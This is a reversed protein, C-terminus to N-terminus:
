MENFGDPTGAMDAGPPSEAGTCCSMHGGMETVSLSGLWPLTDAQAIVDAAPSLVALKVGDNPRSRALRKLMSHAIDDM